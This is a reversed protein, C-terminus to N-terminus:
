NAFICMKKQNYLAQKLYDKYKKLFYKMRVECTYKM